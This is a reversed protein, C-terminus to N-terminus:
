KKSVQSKYCCKYSLFIQYINLNLRLAGREYYKNDINLVKNNTDCKCRKM